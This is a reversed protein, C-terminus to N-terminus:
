DADTVLEYASRISIYAAIMLTIIGPAWTYVPDKIGDLGFFLIYLGFFYLGFSGLIVIPADKLSFGLIIVGFSLVLILIYFGLTGVFGTPNISFSINECVFKGNKDGCVNYIYDGILATSCFEYTYDEGAKEMLEGITIITSNPIKVSTMNVYTCNDCQQYLTACKNQKFTGLSDASVFTSFFIIGFLFFLSLTKIKNNM